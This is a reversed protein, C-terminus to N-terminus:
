NLNNCPRGLQGDQRSTALYNTGPHANTDRAPSPGLRKSGGSIQDGVTSSVRLRQLRVSLGTVAPIIAAPRGADDRDPLAM